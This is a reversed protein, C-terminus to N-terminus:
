RQQGIAGEYILGFAPPRPSIRPRLWAILVATCLLGFFRQLDIEMNIWHSNGLNVSHKRTLILGREHIVAQGSSKQVAELDVAHDMIEALM